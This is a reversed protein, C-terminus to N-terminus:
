ARLPASKGSDSEHGPFLETLYDEFRVFLQESDFHHRITLRGQHGMENRLDQDDILSAVIAGMEEPDSGKTVIGGGHALAEQVGGVPFTVVPKM